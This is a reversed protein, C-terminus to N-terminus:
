QVDVKAGKLTINGSGADLTISAGQISINGSSDISIKAKNAKHEITLTDATAADPRKGAEKLGNKDFRITLGAAEIVRLGDADILDQTVKGSYPKPTANDDSFQARDGSSVEAPLILWWDGPNSQPGKGSEWLAGIDVGDDAFGGRHAVLVRTGPYRPLVLGCKGWAVPTLYPIDTAPSASPRQVPLRRAQNSRGDAPALGQWVEVTQSPPEDTGQSNMKRVEGVEPFRLADVVDRAANRLAHAVDTAPDAHATDRSGQRNSRSVPTHKDWGDLPESDKLVVGTLTTVFSSARGLKHEVSNVYLKVSDGGGIGIPLFSTVASLLAAGLSPTTKSLDEPAPVFEVVDGPKLDPRGKSTLRFQDRTPPKEADGDEGVGANPDSVVSELKESEILGSSLELKKPEHPIIERVGIRLVGNRILFMGRGYKGTLQEMRKGLDQLVSLVTRGQEASRSDTGPNDPNPSAGDSQSGEPAGKDEWSESPINAGNPGLLQALMASLKETPAISKCRRLALTEYIWERAIITTEYRRQGAKRTVSVIKLVAVFAEKPLQESKSPGLADTLGAVNALYGGVKKNTDVWYLFLKLAAVKYSDGNKERLKQYHDDTLGEIVFSYAGGELNAPLAAHIEAYYDDSGIELGAPSLKGGEEGCFSILWGASNGIMPKDVLASLLASM